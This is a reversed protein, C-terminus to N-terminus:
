SWGWTNCSKTLMSIAQANYTIKQIFCLQFPDPGVAAVDDDWCDAADKKSYSCENFLTVGRLFNYEYLVAYLQPSVARLRSNILVCRTRLRGYSGSFHPHYENLHEHLNRKLEMVFSQTM